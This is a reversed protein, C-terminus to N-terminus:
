LCYHTNVAVTVSFYYLRPRLKQAPYKHNNENWSEYSYSLFLIMEKEGKRSSNFSEEIGLGLRRPPGETIIM